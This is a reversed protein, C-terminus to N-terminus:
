TLHRCESYQGAIGLIIGDTVAVFGPLAALAPGVVVDYTGDNFGKTGGVYVVDVAHGM